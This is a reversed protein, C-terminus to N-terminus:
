PAFDFSLEIDIGSSRYNGTTLTRDLNLVDRFRYVSRLALNRYIQYEYGLSFYREDQGYYGTSRSSSYSATLRHRDRLRYVLSADYYRSSQRYGSTGRGNSLLTYLGFSYSLRGKPAGTLGLSLTTAESQSGLTDSFRTQSRDVTLSLLNFAGLDYDFGAGYADTKSNSSLNGQSQTRYGRLNMTFRESAQYALTTSLNELNSVGTSLLDGSAGSSFGNGGYGLGSGSSLGGLTAIQGSDSKLYSGTISWMPSPKFTSALSIDKGAGRKGLSLINSFSTRSTISLPGSNWGVGLRFTQLSLEGIETKNDSTIPGKGTQYDLAWDTRFRGIDRNATVSTTSLRSEDTSRNATRTHTLGWRTGDADRYRTSASASTYRSVSTAGNTSTRSVISSNSTTVTSSWPGSGYEVTLDTARENRSFGRSEIAVYNSPIDRASATLNFRGFRYAGDLGRATGAPQTTGVAKGRAQSFQLYSGGASDGIPLRYDWGEVKRDGDLSQVLVPRYTVTVTQNLDVYRTMYFRRPYTADFTYDVNPVQTISGVRIVVTAPIPEYSLDYPISPAGRGQFLDVKTRNDASGSGVQEMVTAGVRGLRGFDYSLGVGQITGSTQNFSSSEYTAVIASSPAIIRSIFTIAGLESDLDFDEGLKQAVGDVRVELTDSRIRGSQLYYPGVSNNGEISVTRASGRANSRVARFETRGQSWALLGGNVSRSLRAFQNTNLLTANIDGYSFKAPGRDYNFTVRNQDPDQLRNDTVQFNFDWFGLVRKGNVTLNGSDTFTRDGEGYYNLTQFADRDGTVTHKHFAIVRQGTLNVRNAVSENFWAKLSKPRARPNSKGPTRQRMRERLKIVQIEKVIAPDLRLTRVQAHANSAALGLVGVLGAYAALKTRKLM